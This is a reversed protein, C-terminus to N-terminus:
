KKGVPRMDNMDLVLMAGEMRPNIFAMMREVFLEHHRYFRNARVVRHRGNKSGHTPFANPTKPHAPRLGILKKEEDYMLIVADPRGFRDFAAAGIMINGKRCLTVHMKGKKAPGIEFEKWNADM